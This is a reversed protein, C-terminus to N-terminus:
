ESGEEDSADTSSASPSQVSKLWDRLQVAEVMRGVMFDRDETSSGAEYIRQVALLELVKFLADAGKVNGQLLGCVEAILGELNEM